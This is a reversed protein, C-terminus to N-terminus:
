SVHRDFLLLVLALALAMVLALVLAVALELVLALALALLCRRWRRRCCCRWAAAGTACAKAQTTLAIGALKKVASRHPGCNFDRLWTSDATHPIGHYHGLAPSGQPIEASRSPWASRPYCCGM